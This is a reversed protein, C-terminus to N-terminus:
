RTASRSDAPAGRPVNDREGPSSIVAGGTGRTEDPGGARTNEPAPTTAGPQGATRTEDPGGCRTNEPKLDANVSGSSNGM